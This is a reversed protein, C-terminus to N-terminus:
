AAATALESRKKQKRRTFQNGILQFVERELALQEEGRTTEATHYKQFSHESRSVKCYSNFLDNIGLVIDEADGPLHFGVRESLNVIKRLM